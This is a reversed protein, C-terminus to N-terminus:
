AEVKSALFKRLMGANFTTTRETLKTTKLENKSVLRWVTASSVGLLQKVVPLRLQTSDPLSDFYKLADPIIGHTTQQM